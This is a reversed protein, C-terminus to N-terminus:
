EVSDIAIAFWEPSQLLDLMMARRDWDSDIFRNALSQLRPETFPHRISQLNPLETGPAIPSSDLKKTVREILHQWQRLVETRAISEKWTAKLTGWQIEKTGIAAIWQHCSETDMMKWPFLSLPSVQNGIPIADEGQHQEQHHQSNRLPDRHLPVLHAHSPFIPTLPITEWILYENSLYYLLTEREYRWRPDIRRAFHEIWSLKESESLDQWDHWPTNEILGLLEPPSLVARYVEIDELEWLHSTTSDGFQFQYRQVQAPALSDEGVFDRILRDTLYNLGVYQGDLAVRLSHTRNTGDYSIAIQTWRDMAISETTQVQIMSIPEDHVLSVRLCGNTIELRLEHRNFALLPSADDIAPTKAPRVKQTLVRQPGVASSAIFDQGFYCNLVITWEQSRRLPDEIDGYAAPAFGGSGIRLPTKFARNGDDDQLIFRQDVSPWVLMRESPSPKPHTTQKQYWNRVADGHVLTEWDKIESQRISAIADTLTRLQNQRFDPANQYLWSSDSQILDSLGFSTPQYFSQFPQLAIPNANANERPLNATVSYFNSHDAVQFQNARYWSATAIRDSTANNTRQVENGTLQYSLFSDFRMNFQIAAELWRDHPTYDWPTNGNSANARNKEAVAFYDGCWDNTQQKAFADSRIWDIIAQQFQQQRTQPPVSRLNQLEVSHIPNGLLASSTRAVLSDWQRNSLGEFKIDQINEQAFAQDFCLQNWILSCGLLLTFSSLLFSVVKTWITENNTQEATIALM